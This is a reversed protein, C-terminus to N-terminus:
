QQPGQVVSIGDSSPGPPRLRHRGCYDRRAVEASKRADEEAREAEVRKVLAPVTLVAYRNIKGHARSM